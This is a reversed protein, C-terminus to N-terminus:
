LSLTHTSQWFTGTRTDACFKRGACSASARACDTRCPSGIRGSPRVLPLTHCFKSSRRPTGSPSASSCWTSSASTSGGCSSSSSGDYPRRSPGPGRADIKSFSSVSSCASLPLDLDGGGATAALDRLVLTRSGSASLVGLLLDLRLSNNSSRGADMRAVKSCRLTSSSALKLIRLFSLPKQDFRREVFSCTSCSSLSRGSAKFYQSQVGATRSRM